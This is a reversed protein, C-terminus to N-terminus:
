PGYEPQPTAGAPSEPTATTLPAGVVRVVEQSWILWDGGETPRLIYLVEQTFGAVNYITQGTDWNIAQDNWVEAAQVPRYPGLADSAAPLVEVGFRALAAYHIEGAVARRELERKLDAWLPGDPHLFRYVVSSDLTTGVEQMTINYAYVLAKADDESIPAPPAPTARVASTATPAPGVIIGRGRSFPSFGVALDALVLLGVLVGLGGLVLLRTRWTMKWHLRRLWRVISRM